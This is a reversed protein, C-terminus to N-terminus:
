VKLYPFTRHAGIPTKSSSSSINNNYNSSSIATTRKVFRGKLRPRKEANLKRVEYRIKKSFLRSKRKERYRMVRAERGGDGGVVHRGEGMEVESPGVGGTCDPWGDVANLEPRCGSTWPLGKSGWEDIVGDYNLRLFIKRKHDVGIGGSEVPWREPKEEVVAAVMAVAAKDDSCKMDFDLGWCSSVVSEDEVKMGYCCEDDDYLNMEVKHDDLLPLIGRMRGEEDGDTLLTEVDAAFEALEADSPLFGPVGSWKNEDDDDDDDRGLQDDFGILSIGFEAEFDLGGFNGCFENQHHDVESGNIEFPDFVPVSFILQDDEKSVEGENDSGIEPVVPNNNRQNYNSSKKPYRPTRPKRTFGGQWPPLTSPSLTSHFNPNPISPTTQTRTHKLSGTELRVRKHRSALKNALHVSTDCVHCLFADDSACYWRARRKLCSECARATKGALACSTSKSSKLSGQM